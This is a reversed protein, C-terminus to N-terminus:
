ENLEGAEKLLKKAKAIEANRKKEAVAKKTEAKKAAAETKRKEVAKLRKYNAESMVSKPTVKQVIQAGDAIQEIQQDTLNDMDLEHFTTPSYPSSNKALIFFKQEMEKRKARDEVSPAHVWGHQKLTNVAIGGVEGGVPKVRVLGRLHLEHEQMRDVLEEVTVAEHKFGVFGTRSCGCEYCDDGEDYNPTILIVMNQM